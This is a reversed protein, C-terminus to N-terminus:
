MLYNNYKMIVFKVVNANICSPDALLPNVHHGICVALASVVCSELQTEDATHMSAAVLERRIQDFFQFNFHM